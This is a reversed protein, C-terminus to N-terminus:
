TQLLLEAFDNQLYSCYLLGSVDPSWDQPMCNGKNIDLIDNHILINKYAGIFQQCTPYDSCGFMAEYLPIDYVSM